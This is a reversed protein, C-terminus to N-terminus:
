RLRHPSTCKNLVWRLLGAWLGLRGPSASEPQPPLAAASRSLGLRFGRPVPHSAPSRAVLVPVQKQTARATRNKAQMLGGVRADLYIQKRLPPAAPGAAPIFNRNGPERPARRAHSHNGRYPLPRARARSLPCAAGRFGPCCISGLLLACCLNGAYYYLSSSPSNM